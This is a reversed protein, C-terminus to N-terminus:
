IDLWRLWKPTFPLQPPHYLRGRIAVNIFMLTTGGYFLVAIPMSAYAVFYAPLYVVGVGINLLYALGFIHVILITFAFLVGALSLLSLFLILTKLHLKLASLASQNIFPHIRHLLLWALSPALLWTLPLVAWGLIVELLENNGAVSRIFRMGWESLQLVVFLTSIAPLACAAALIRIGLALSQQAPDSSQNM